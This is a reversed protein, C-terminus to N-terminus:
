GGRKRRFSATAHENARFRDYGRLVPRRIAEGLQDRPEDSLSVALDMKTVRGPVRAVVGRNEGADRWREVLMNTIPATFKGKAVQVREEPVDIQCDAEVGAQQMDGCRKMNRNDREEARQLRPPPMRPVCWVGNQTGVIKGAWLREEADAHGFHLGGEVM